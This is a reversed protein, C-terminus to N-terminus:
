REKFSGKNFCARCVSHYESDGVHIPNDSNYFAAGNLVMLNHTAKKGCHCISKMEYLKDAHQLLWIVSPFGKNNFSNRLGYCIVPIEYTDVISRLIEMIEVSFFQVEDILVVDAKGVIDERCVEWFAHPDNSDIITAPFTNGRRNVVVGELSERTDISPKIVIPKLGSRQYNDANNILLTTKSANMAGYYFHIKAM